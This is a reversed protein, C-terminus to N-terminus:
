NGDINKNHSFPINYNNLQITNVTIFNIQIEYQSFHSSISGNIDINFILAPYEQNAM